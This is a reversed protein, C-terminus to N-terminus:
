SALTKRALLTIGNYRVLRYRIRTTPSLEYVVAWGILERAAISDPLSWYLEYGEDTLRRELESRILWDKDIRKERPEWALYGRLDSAVVYLAGSM